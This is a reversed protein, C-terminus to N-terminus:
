FHYAAFLAYTNQSRAETIPSDAADGRQWDDPPPEASARQMCLAAPLSALMLAISSTPFVRM